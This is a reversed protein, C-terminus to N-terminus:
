SEGSAANILIPSDIHCDPLCVCDSLQSVPVHWRERENRMVKETTLRNDADGCLESAFM